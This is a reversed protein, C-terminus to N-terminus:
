SVGKVIINNLMKNIILLFIIELSDLAPDNIQSQITQLKIGNDLGSAIATTIASANNNINKLLCSLLFNNMKIKINEIANSGNTEYKAYELKCVPMADLEEYQLAKANCSVALCNIPMENESSLM